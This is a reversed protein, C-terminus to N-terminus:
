LRFSFDEKLRSLNPSYYPDNEIINEWRQRMYRAEDSWQTRKEGSVNKGRSMSEYHILEAYPTWVTRLGQEGFKLCLDVDNYSVALDKSNLGGVELFDAKKFM